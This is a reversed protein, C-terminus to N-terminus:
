QFLNLIQQWWENNKESEQPKVEPQQSPQQSVTEQPQTGEVVSEVVAAGAGITTVGIAVRTKDGGDNPDRKPAPDGNPMTGSVNTDISKAVNAQEQNRKDKEDRERKRQNNYEPSAAVDQNAISEIGELLSQQAKAAQEPDLIYNYSYAATATAATAVAVADATQKAVTAARVARYAKYGKYARYLALIPNRGDPDVFKMPNNSCYVYLSISYYKAALPDIMMFRGLLGDYMRAGYDYWDVGHMRDLEKGNYKYSQIGSTATNVEFLGGFPYYHNIQEIVGTQNIVM